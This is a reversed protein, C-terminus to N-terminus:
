LRTTAISYEWVFSQGAKLVVLGAGSNLSNPGGLWPEPCFFKGDKDGWLV